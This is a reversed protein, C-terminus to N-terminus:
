ISTVAYVAIYGVAPYSNADCGKKLDNGGGWPGGHIM